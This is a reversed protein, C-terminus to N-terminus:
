LPALPLCGAGVASFGGDVPVNAGHVMRAADSLLFLAADAVDRPEPFRGLPIRALMPAARAPDAWAERGMDTMTVTPSLANVRVGLRHGLELAMVKTLQNLAGKSACYAARDPMASAGSPVSSVNVVARGSEPGVAAWRRAVAQTLFMAARVNVAFTADWGEVTAGLFSQTAGTGACNVVFDIGERSGATWAADGARGAAAADALDAVLPVLGFEEACLELDRATRAVGVVECGAGALAAAIAKGIGKGAGTVLAKRGALDSPSRPMTSNPRHGLM